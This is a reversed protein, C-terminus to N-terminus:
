CSTTRLHSCVIKFQSRDYLMTPDHFSRLIVWFNAKNGKKVTQRYKDLLFVKLTVRFQKFNFKFIEM